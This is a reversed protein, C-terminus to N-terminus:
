HRATVHRIPTLIPTPSQNNLFDALTIRNLSQKMDDNLMNLAKRSHCGVEHVLNEKVTMGLCHMVSIPGELAEFIEKLTIETPKKTLYYGGVKGRKAEILGHKRLDMAVKQLFLFSLYRKKALTRLSLPKAEAKIADESGEALELLLVLGYDIKRTLHFM